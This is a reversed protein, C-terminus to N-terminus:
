NKRQEKKRVRWKGQDKGHEQKKGGIMERGVYM